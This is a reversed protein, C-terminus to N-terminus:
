KMCNRYRYTWMSPDDQQSTPKPWYWIIKMSESTLSVNKRLAVKGLFFPIGTERDENSTNMAVMHGVKMDTFPDFEPFVDELDREAAINAETTSPRPKKTPRSTTTQPKGQRPGFYGRPLIPPLNNLVITKKEGSEVISPCNELNPANSDSQQMSAMNSANLAPPWFHMQEWMTSKNTRPFQKLYQMLWKTNEIACLNREMYMLEMICREKMKIFEELAKMEQDNADYVEAFSPKQDSSPM